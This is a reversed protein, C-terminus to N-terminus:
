SAARSRILLRELAGLQESWYTKMREATRADSLKTHQVVVQAKAKGKSYFNVELHTRGDIWTVRMSKDRTTKRVTIAPDALWRGRRASESWALFLRALPVSITKSRSIKYGDTSEHKDRLGREQEYAVTIMQQWWANNEHEGVVAVIQKHSMKRAGARDLLVFWESWDRGTGTRVAEEGVGASRKPRVKSPLRKRSLSGM